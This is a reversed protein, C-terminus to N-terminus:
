IDLEYSVSEIMNLNPFSNDCLYYILYYVNNSYKIDYAIFFVAQLCKWKMYQFYPTIM